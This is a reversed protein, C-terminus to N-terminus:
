DIDDYSSGSMKGRFVWFEYTTYCLIFPIVAATVVLMFMLTKPSAAAGHVTVGPLVVQPIMVPYMGASLGVFSFLILAGNWLLPAVERRRSLSVLCMVFAIVALAPFVSVYYFDPKALWKDAVHPYRAVTWLHVVISIPFTILAATFAQRYGRDQLDGTTKMVLYSAGLMVYGVVVGVAVLCSFPTLWGWVSGIFVGDGIELGWLLGGLAFGQALTTVLSGAGFAWGWLVKNPSYKRFEFAVGRFVLGFLMLVLPIYLSSLLVAYFLPFAGFLMGGLLVLWTQNGHWTAEISGMMKGREGDDRALLSLIGVGLDAGDTIAYYLLFFGILFLWINALYPEIAEMMVGM